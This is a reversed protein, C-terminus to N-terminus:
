SHTGVNYRIADALYPLIATALTRGDLVLNVPQTSGGNSASNRGGNNGGAVGGGGAISNLRNNPTVQAGKPLYVLEPGKEGVMALGGPANDTGEAFGAWNAIGGIGPINNVAGKITDGIRGAASGLQGILGSIGDIVHQVIGRGFNAAGALIGNWASSITSGISALAGGIRGPISAIGNIISIVLESVKMV